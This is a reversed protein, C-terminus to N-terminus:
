NLYWDNKAEDFNDNEIAKRIYEMLNNMFYINHITILQFAVMEDSKIVDGQSPFACQFILDMQSAPLQNGDFGEAFIIAEGDFLVKAAIEPNIKETVCSQFELDIVFEVNSSDRSISTESSTEITPLPTISPKLFSTPSSALKIQDSTEVQQLAHTTQVSKAADCSMFLGLILMSLVVFSLISKPM